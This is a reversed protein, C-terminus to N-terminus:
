RKISRHKLWEFVEKLWWVRPSNRHDELKFSQPFRKRKELRDIHSRSYPIGLPKFGKYTVVEYGTM